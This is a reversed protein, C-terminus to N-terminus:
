ASSRNSNASTNGSGRGGADAISEATPAPLHVAFIIAGLSVANDLVALSFVPIRYHATGNEMDEMKTFALVTVVATFLLSVASAVLAKKVQAAPFLLYLLCCIFLEFFSFCPPIYLVLYHRARKCRHDQPIDQM